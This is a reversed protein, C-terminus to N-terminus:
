KIVKRNGFAIKSKQPNLFRLMNKRVVWGVAVSAMKLKVTERVPLLIELPKSFLSFNHELINM